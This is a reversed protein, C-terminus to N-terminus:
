VQDLSERITVSELYRSLALELSVGDEMLWRSM